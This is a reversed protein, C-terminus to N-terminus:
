EPPNCPLRAIRSKEGCRCSTCLRISGGSSLQFTHSPHIPGPQAPVHSVPRQAPVIPNKATPHVRRTGAEKHKAWVREIWAGFSGDPNAELIEAVVAPDVYIVLRKRPNQRNRTPM